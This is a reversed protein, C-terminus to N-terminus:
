RINLHSSHHINGVNNGKGRDFSWLAFKGRSEGERGVICIGDRWHHLRATPEPARRGRRRGVGHHRCRGLKRALGHFLDSSHAFCILHSNSLFFMQFSFTKYGKIRWASYRVKRLALSYKPEFWTPLICIIALWQSVLTDRAIHQRLM